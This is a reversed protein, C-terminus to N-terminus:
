DVYMRTKICQRKYHKIYDINEKFIIEAIGIGVFFNVVDNSMCKLKIGLPRKVAYM